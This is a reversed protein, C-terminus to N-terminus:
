IVFLKYSYIRMRITTLNRKLQLINVVNILSDTQSVHGFKKIEPQITEYKKPIQYSEEYPPKSYHKKKARTNPDIPSM